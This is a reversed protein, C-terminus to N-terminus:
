LTRLMALNMGLLRARVVTQWFANFNRNTLFALGGIVLGFALMAASMKWAGRFLGFCCCLVFLVGAFAFAWLSKSLLMGCVLMCLSSFFAILPYIPKKVSFADLM